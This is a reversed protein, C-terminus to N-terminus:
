YAAHGIEFCCYKNKNIHKNNKTTEQKNKNKTKNKTNKTNQKLVCAAAIKQCKKGSEPRLKGTNKNDFIVSHCIECKGSKKRM